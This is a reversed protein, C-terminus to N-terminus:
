GSQMERVRAGLVTVPVLLLLATVHYWAPATDWAAIAAAASIALEVIGLVLAHAVPRRQALWGTIYGGVFSFIAVYALVILLVHADHARGSADFAQPSLARFALDGGLSLVATAFFGAGVALISRVKPPEGSV